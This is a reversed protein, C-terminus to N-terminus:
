STKAERAAEQELHEEIWMSALTSPDISKKRAYKKLEALDSSGLLVVLEIDVPFGEADHTDWWEAEEELSTFSPIPGRGETPYGLDIAPQPKTM